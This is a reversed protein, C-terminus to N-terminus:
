TPALDNLEALLKIAPFSQYIVNPFNAKSLMCIQAVSVV